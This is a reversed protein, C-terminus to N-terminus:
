RRIPIRNYPIGRDARLDAPLGPVREAIINRRIEDTGGGIRTAPSHLLM